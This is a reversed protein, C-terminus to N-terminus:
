ILHKKTFAYGSSSKLYKEFEQARKKNSFICCWILRFPRRSSCYKSSGSNHERLRRELNVTLGIYRSNDIKSQIIYVFYWKTLGERSM